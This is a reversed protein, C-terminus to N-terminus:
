DRNWCYKYLLVLIIEAVDGKLTSQKSENDIGVRTLRAEIRNILNITIIYCICAKTFAKNGM